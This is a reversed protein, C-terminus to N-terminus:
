TQHPTPAPAATPAPAPAPQVTPAPVPAAVAPAAPAPVPAAVPPPAPVPAAVPPAAPAPAPAPVPAAVPPAAPAPAPVPAAVPPATPAPAPAPVPAAVPPPAPAPAPVPAAVPPPAPAPAPAPVHAAVPPAAPAPAPAAPAPAPAAPAPAPAVVPATPAPPSVPAAPAPAAPAPAHTQATSAPAAPPDPEVPAAPSAAAPAPAVPADASEASSDDTPASPSASPETEDPEGSRSDASSGEDHHPRPSPFGARLANAARGLEARLESASTGDSIKSQLDLLTSAAQIRQEDRANRQAIGAVAESKRRASKPDSEFLGEVTSVLRNLVRHVLGASFGGLLAIIHRGVGYLSSDPPVKVVLCLITGAIIGLVLRTWYSSDYRPDYTAETIHRNLSFLGHFAAGLASAFMFFVQNVLLPLGSSLTPNALTPDPGVLPSTGVLVLGLMSIVAVAMMARSLPLLRYTRRGEFAGHRNLVVLARPSAPAALNALASHAPALHSFPVVKAGDDLARLIPLVEPPLSEGGGTLYLSMAVVEQELESRLSDHDLRHGTSEDDAMSM